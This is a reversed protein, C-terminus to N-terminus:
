SILKKGSLWKAINKRPLVSIRGMTHREVSGENLRFAFECM